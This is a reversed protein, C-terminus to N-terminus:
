AVPVFESWGRARIYGVYPGDCVSTKACSACEARKTKCNEALYDDHNEWVRGKTLCKIQVGDRLRRLLCHQSIGPVVCHPFGELGVTCGADSATRVAASLPDRISVFSATLQDRRSAPMGMPMLSSFNAHRAGHRAVLAAIQPLWAVNEPVVVTNTRVSGGLSSVNEMAKIVREHSGPRGSLRDHIAAVHGHVSVTCEDVGAEILRAAYGRDAVRWGNTQVSVFRIGRAKFRGVLEVLDGRLTPEGGHLNIAAFGSQRNEAVFGEIEAPSMEESGPRAWQGCACFVCGLNCRDTVHISLLRLPRAIPARTVSLPTTPM